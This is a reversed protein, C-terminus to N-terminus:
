QQGWGQNGYSGYMGGQVSPDMMGGQDYGGQGSYGMMNGQYGGSGYMGPGGSGGRGYGAGSDMPNVGQMQAMEPSGMNYGYPGYMGGGMGMGPYGGYEMGGYYGASSGMMSGPNPYGNPDMSYGGVMGMGGGGPGGGYSSSTDYKPERGPPAPMQYQSSVMSPPKLADSRMKAEQRGNYAEMEKKYRDTDQSALTSFRTHKDPDINKWRMGIIKGMEEFSVKGGDKKLRKLQDPDLYDEADPVNGVKAPDDALVVRLIKEREEKFFFNYASLPSVLSAVM